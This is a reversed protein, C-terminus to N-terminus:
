LPAASGASSAVLRRVLVAHLRAQNGTSLMTEALSLEPPPHLDGVKDAIAKEFAALILPEKDVLDGYSHPEGIKQERSAFDGCM